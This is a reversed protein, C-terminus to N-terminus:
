GLPKSDDSTNARQSLAAGDADSAPDTPDNNTAVGLRYNLYKPVSEMAWPVWAMSLFSILFSGAEKKIGLKEALWAGFYFGAGFGALAWGIVLSLPRGKRLALFMTICAGFGSAILVDNSNM